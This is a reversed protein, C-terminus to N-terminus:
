ERKTTTSATSIHRNQNHQAKLVDEDLNILLVDRLILLLDKNKVEEVILKNGERSLKDKMKNQEEKTRFGM